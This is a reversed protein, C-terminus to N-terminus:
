GTFKWDQFASKLERFTKSDNADKAMELGKEFVWEAKAVEKQEILLHAYPYYTPLYKPHRLTLSEFIHISEAPDIKLYELALAYYNFPDEPEEAVFQKLQKVRDM